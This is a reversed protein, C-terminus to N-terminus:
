PSQAPSIEQTWGEGCMAKGGGRKCTGISHGAANLVHSSGVSHHGIFHVTIAAKDTVDLAM